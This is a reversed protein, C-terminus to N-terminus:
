EVGIQVACEMGDARYAHIEVGPADEALARHVDALTEAPVASTYLLTVLEGGSELLDRIRRVLTGADVGAGDGDCSISTWRQSAVADAMDEVDDQWDNTADHVALAALGGVYCETDIVSFQRRDAELHDIVPTADRGNTLVVCREGLEADADTEAGAEAFVDRLPGAPVLALLGAGPGPHRRSTPSTSPLAEIRLDSVTGLAFADEILPGADGTHVHVTASTATDRGLVVSHGRGDMMRRLDDLAAATEGRFHFMVELEAGAPADAHAHADAHADDRTPGGVPAGASGAGAAGGPTDGDSAAGGAGGLGAGGAGAGRDGGEGGAGGRGDGDGGLTEVLADLLVVFGRGGADVVGAERLVPLLDPTRALAARAADAAARAVDVAPGRADTAADAAARLVTLATGEVPTSLAETVYRVATTMIRALSGAGLEGTSAVDALARLVQGLVTGSNGRAGRVAGGALAATVVAVDPGQGTGGGTGTGGGADVTEGAGAGEGTGAGSGARVGAGSGPGADADAGARAGAGGGEGTGAGTGALADVAAAMTASLNAGTDSDPIPFVNLRNIEDKRHELDRAARRAWRVVVDGAGAGAGSVAGAGARPDAADDYGGTPRESEM